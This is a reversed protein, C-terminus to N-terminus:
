EELRTKLTRYIAISVDDSVYEDDNLASWDATEEIDDIVDDIILNALEAANQLDPIYSKFMEIIDTYVADKQYETMKM